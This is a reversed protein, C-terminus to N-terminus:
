FYDPRKNISRDCDKPLWYKEPDYDYNFDNKVFISNIYYLEDDQIFTYPDNMFTIISFLQNVIKLDLEYKCAEYCKFVSSGSNIMDDLIIVPADTPIGDILNMIGYSKRKKRISFANINLNYKLAIQQIATILPLSGTELGCLQFYPIENKEKYYNLISDLLLISVYYSMVSNHTLNRLYIQYTNDRILPSKSPITGKSLDPSYQINPNCRFICYKDIYETLKSKLELKKDDSM